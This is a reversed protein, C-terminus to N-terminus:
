LITRTELLYKCIGEDLYKITKCVEKGEENFSTGVGHSRENYWEGTYNLGECKVYNM